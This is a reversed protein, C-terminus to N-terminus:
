HKAPPSQGLLQEVQELRNRRRAYRRLKDRNIVFKAFATRVIYPLEEQYTFFLDTDAVLDVLMKELPATVYRGQQQVPSESILPKIIVPTASPLGHQSLLLWDEYRYVALNKRDIRIPQEQLLQYVSEVAVRDVEVLQLVSMPQQIMLDALVRTDWVCCDTFPLQAKLRDNIKRLTPSLDPQYTPRNNIQYQGYGTRVLVGEQTLEHLRWALTSPKAEGWYRELLDILAAKPITDQTGFQERLTAHITAKSM